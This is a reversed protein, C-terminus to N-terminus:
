RRPDEDVIVSWQRTVAIKAQKGGDEDGSGSGNGNVYGAGSGVGERREESEGNVLTVNKGVLYVEGSEADADEDPLRASRDRMAFSNM